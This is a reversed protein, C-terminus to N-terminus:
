QEPRVAPCSFPFFAPHLSGASHPQDVSNARFLIQVEVGNSASSGSIGWRTKPTNVGRDFM